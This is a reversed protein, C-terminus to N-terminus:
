FKKKFDPMSKENHPNGHAKHLDEDAHIESKKFYKKEKFKNITGGACLTEEQHLSGRLKWSQGGM